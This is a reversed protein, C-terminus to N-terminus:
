ESGISFHWRELPLSSTSIKINVQFDSINEVAKVYRKNKNTEKAKFGFNASDLSIESSAWLKTITLRSTPQRRSKIWTRGLLSANPIQSM